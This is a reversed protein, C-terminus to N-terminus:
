YPHGMYSNLAKPEKTTTNKKRCELDTTFDILHCILSNRIRDHCKSDCTFDDQLQLGIDCECRRGNAVPISIEECGGDLIQCTGQRRQQLSPDFVATNIANQVTDIVFELTNSKQRTFHIKDGSLWGLFGKYAIAKTAGVALIHSKIDSGNTMASKIYSGVIWYIRHSTVDYQLSVPNGLSGTSVITRPTERTWTGCFLSKSGSTGSIWFLVGDHSDITLFNVHQLNTYITDTTDSNVSFSMINTQGEIWGLLSSIGDFILDSGSSVYTLTGVQGTMM